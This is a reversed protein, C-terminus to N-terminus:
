PVKGTMPRFLLSSTPEPRKNGVVDTSWNAAVSARQNPTLSLLMLRTSGFMPLKAVEFTPKMPVQGAGIVYDRSRDADFAFKEVPLWSLRAKVAALFEDLPAAPNLSAFGHGAWSGFPVVPLNDSAAPFNKADGFEPMFTMNGALDFRRSHYGCRIQDARCAAGVLLNGRHTCVNSLCRLEGQRDRSLLLPEDILGPLLSRPSLSGPQAVDALEGIWQWSRAFVRECLLEFAAGDHYFTGELTSAATIDPHIRYIRHRNHM